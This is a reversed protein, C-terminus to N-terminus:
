VTAPDLAPRDKWRRAIGVLDAKSFTERLADFSPLV